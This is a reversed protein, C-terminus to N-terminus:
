ASNGKKNKEIIDKFKQEEICVVTRIPPLSGYEIILKEVMPGISSKSSIAEVCEQQTTFTPDTFVYIDGAMTNFLVVVLWKM